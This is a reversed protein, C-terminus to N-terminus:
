NLDYNNKRLTKELHNKDFINICREWFDAEKTNFGDRKNLAMTLSITENQGYRRGGPKIFHRNAYPAILKNGFIDNKTMIPLPFLQSPLNPFNSWNIQATLSMSFKLNDFTFGDLINTETQKDTQEIAAAKLQEITVEVIPLEDGIQYLTITEGNNVRGIETALQEATFQEGINKVIM